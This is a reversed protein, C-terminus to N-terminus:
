IRGKFNKVSLHYPHVNKTNINKELVENVM